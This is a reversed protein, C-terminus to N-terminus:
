QFKKPIHEELHLQRRQVYIQQIRWIQRFHDKNPHKLNILVKYCKEVHSSGGSVVVESLDIAITSTEGIVGVSGVLDKNEVFGWCDSETNLLNLTFHQEYNVWEWTWRHFWGEYM